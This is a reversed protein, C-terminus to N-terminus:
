PGMLDLAERGNLVATRMTRGGFLRNARKPWQHKSNAVEMSVIRGHHSMSALHNNIHDLICGAKGHSARDVSLATSSIHHYMTEM